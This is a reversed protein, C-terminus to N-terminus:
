EATKKRRGKAQQDRKAALEKFCDWFVRVPHTPEYLEDTGARRFLGREHFLKCDAFQYVHLVGESDTHKVAEAAIFESCIMCGERVKLRLLDLGFQLDNCWEVVNLGETGGLTRAVFEKMVGDTRLIVPLSESRLQKADIKNGGLSINSVLVFKETNWRIFEVDSEIPQGTIIGGLAFDITPDDLCKQINESGVHLLEQEPQRGLQKLRKWIPEDIEALMPITYKTIAIRLRYIKELQTRTSRFEELIRQALEYVREGGRTFRLEAGRATPKIILREKNFNWFHEELTKLQKEVSSQDRKLIRLAAARTSGTEYVAVFTRLQDVTVSVFPALEDAWEGLKQQQEDPL